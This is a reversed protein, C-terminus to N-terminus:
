GTAQEYDIEPIWTVDGYPGDPGVAQLGFRLDSFSGQRVTAWVAEGTLPYMPRCCWSDPFPWTDAVEGTASYVNVRGLRSDLVFVREDEDATLSTPSTFEGPGQGEGGLNHVFTGDDPTVSPPTGCGLAVLTLVLAAPILVRHETDFREQKPTQKKKV